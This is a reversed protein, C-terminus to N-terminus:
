DMTVQTDRSSSAQNSECQIAGNATTFDLPLLQVASVPALYEASTKGAVEGIGHRRRSLTVLPARSAPASDKARFDAVAQRITSCM